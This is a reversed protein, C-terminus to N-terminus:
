KETFDGDFDTFLDRAEVDDTGRKEITYTRDSDRKEKEITYTRDSDRKEKEITYTRDSDRKKEITYTRDSDRKVVVWDTGRKEITYTRDSDHKSSAGGSEREVPAKVQENPQREKIAKTVDRKDSNTLSGQLRVPQAVADLVCLSVVVSFVNQFKM